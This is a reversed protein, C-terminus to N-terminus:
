NSAGARAFTVRREHSAPENECTLSRRDLTPDNCLV